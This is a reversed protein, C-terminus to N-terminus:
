EAVSISGPLTLPLCIASQAWFICNKKICWNKDLLRSIMFIYYVKCIVKSTFHFCFMQFSYKKLKCKPRLVINDILAQSYIHQKEKQITSVDVANLNRQQNLLLALSGIQHLAECLDYSSFDMWNKRNTLM